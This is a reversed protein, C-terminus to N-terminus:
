GRPVQGAPRAPLGTLDDRYVLTHSTEVVSLTLTLGAALLFAGGYATWSYGSPLGGTLGQPMVALAVVPALGPVLAGPVLWQIWANM